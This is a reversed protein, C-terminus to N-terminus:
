QSNNMIQSSLKPARFHFVRKLTVVPSSLSTGLPDEPSLPMVLPTPSPDPLFPSAYLGGLIAATPSAASAVGTHSHTHLPQQWLQWGETNLHSQLRASGGFSFPRHHPQLAMAM